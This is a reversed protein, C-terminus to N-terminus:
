ANSLNGKKNPNKHDVDKGDGKKVRGAKRMKARAANRQARRRVQLEKGHFDRYEKAYDRAKARKNTGKPM